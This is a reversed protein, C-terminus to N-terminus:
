IVGGLAKHLPISLKCLIVSRSFSEVISINGCYVKQRSRITQHIEIRSDFTGSCFEALKDQHVALDSEVAAMDLSVLKQAYTRKEFTEWDSNIKWIVDLVDLNEELEKTKVAFGEVQDEVENEEASTMLAKLGNTLNSIEHLAEGSKWSATYPAQVKYM